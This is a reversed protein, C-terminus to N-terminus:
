GLYISSEEGQGSEFCSPYLRGSGPRARRKDGLMQIVFDRLALFRAFRSSCSAGPRGPKARQAAERKTGKSEKTAEHDLTKAPM